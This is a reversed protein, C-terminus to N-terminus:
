ALHAALLRRLEITARDARTHAAATPSLDLARPLTALVTVDEALVDLEYDIAARAAAADGLDNRLMVTSVMTTTADMPRAWTAIVNVMAALPYEIRLRASFPVRYAYEMTRPQLLPREGTAVGPDERNAAVHAYRQRYGDEFVELEFPGVARDEDAGFTGAHVFPFHAFDLFNDLFQAATTPVERDPLWAPRLPVDGVEADAEPVPLPEVAPPEFAVLVLGDVDVRTRLATTHSRPPVPGDEGLAPIEVCRGDASFRWGHYPCRLCGQEVSGSALSAGRHPCEDALAAPAGSADLFVVIDTGCLRERRPGGRLAALRGVPHWFRRWAPTLNDVLM